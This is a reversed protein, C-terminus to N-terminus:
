HSYVVRGGTRSLAYAFGNELDAYTAIESLSMGLSVLTQAVVPTVGVLVVEAGLLKASQAAHILLHAVNTDVVPVATIDILVVRAHRSAIAALMTEVFQGTRQDDMGGVMPVVLVGPAVPVVPSVLGQITALMHEQRRYLDELERARRDLQSILRANALAVAVASAVRELLVLDAPTCASSKQSELRLVGIVHGYALLPIYVMTRVQAEQAQRADSLHAVEPAAPNLIISHGSQLVRGLLTNTDVPVVQEVVGAESAEAMGILRVSVPAAHREIQERLGRNTTRRMARQRLYDALSMSWGTRELTVVDVGTNITRSSSLRELAPAVGEVAMRALLEVSSYGMDYERQAIVVQVIGQQLMRITDASIDFCVIKVRGVLGAEAVAAGWSPGNAGCAGFAGQLDPHRALEERALTLGLEPNYLDEYPPLLTIPSRIAAQAGQIRVLGNTALASDFSTSVLGGEPLIRGLAEGALRGAAYNDTGVYALSASGEVPPTDFTILPIGAEGAARITPELGKPDIPALAIGDVRAEIAATVANAQSSPGSTAGVVFEVTVGLDRAAALAGNRVNSWYRSVGAGTVQFVRLSAGDDDMLALSFGSWSTAPLVNKIGREVTQVVDRVNSSLSVAELVDVLLRVEQASQALERYLNSRDSATSELTVDMLM